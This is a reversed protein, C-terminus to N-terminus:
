PAVLEKSNTTVETNVNRILSKYKKYKRELKFTSGTYLYDFLRSTSEHNNVRVHFINVGYKRMDIVTSKINNSNLVDSLQKAFMEDACFSVRPSNKVDYVTGDGDFYGRIYHPLYDKDIQAMPLNAGQKNKIVHYRELDRLIDVSGLYSYVTNNRGKRKSISIKATPCIEKVAFDILERDSEVCELRLVKGTVSGDATIYGLLYAKRESDIVSFYERNTSPNFHGRDGRSYGKDKIYLEIFKHSCKEKFYEEWIIKSGKLNTLYEYEILSEDEKSLFVKHGNNEFGNRKLFKGITSNNRGLINGIQVTNYGQNKLYIIREAEEKNIMKRSMRM